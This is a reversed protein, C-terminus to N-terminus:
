RVWPRKHFKAKVSANSDATYHQLTSPVVIPLHLCSWLFLKAGRGTQGGTEKEQRQPMVLIVVALVATQEEKKLLFHSSQQIESQQKIGCFPNKQLHMRPCPLTWRAVVFNLRFSCLAKNLDFVM